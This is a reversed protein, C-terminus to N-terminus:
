GRKDIFKVPKRSTAPFLDKMLTEKSEVQIKPAVRLTARFHDLIQKKFNVPPDKLNMRVLIEDTGISNTFVEVIYYDVYEINTLIEYLAPPYITTGKYKVMQKQRGVVPGLRLTNRGCSCAASFGYCLDGTKFRLLPTGEVGLTTITVEGLEGEAVPQNQEDLFEVIILEPHLHGGQGAECETFATGMETSAYTSYLELNWSDTIKKGLNNLTFDSNRVAEGICIAKNIGSENYDIGHKDAYEIMRLLFSPVAIIATPSVRRITDWQLEPIGNGVRIIGAGLKRTGLFYALGAMFRRDITTMLQIVDHKDIGACAISIAENYGLRDLDKDTLAITVPDGLTGSTTIFDIIKERPVCIFDDNREQLDDKTTVPIQQLDELTKIKDPVIGNELFLSQYYPSHQSLYLILERLREEQLQKIAATSAQEIAPIM